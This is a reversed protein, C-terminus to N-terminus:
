DEELPSQPEDVIAHNGELENVLDDIREIEKEIETHKDRWGQLDNKISIVINENRVVDRESNEARTM